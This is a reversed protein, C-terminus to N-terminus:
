CNQRRSAPIEAHNEAKSYNSSNFTTKDRYVEIIKGSFSHKNIKTLLAQIRTPNRYESEVPQTNRFEDLKKRLGKPSKEPCINGPSPDIITEGSGGSDFTITYTGCAQAELNVTPYNDELTPNLFVDAASYIKVLEQTNITQTIGILNGPLQTIQKNNLGVLVIVEDQHLMKTLKIFYEFGKRKDWVNAVGLIMFRGEIEMRKKFDSEVPKFLDTDIGNPITIVKYEKLFSEKILKALWKSPTVITMNKVGSFAARKRQYNERSNDAFFSGPYTRKQPCDYCGKRWRDCGVLTFYACHGTFSWCDHLTWVVPKGYEKLFAFLLEINIYYGHINHLHIIDPEITKVKEIFELTAKKSGFGHNDFIRTLLAHSYVDLDQGIRIASDCNKPEKRGYAIWSEHGEKILADHLDTAIRGTSGIGCVSNIQLIKM